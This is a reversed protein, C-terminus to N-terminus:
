CRVWPPPPLPREAVGNHHLAPVTAVPPEGGDAPGFRSGYPVILRETFAGAPGHVRIRGGALVLIGGELTAGAGAQSEEARAAAEAAFARLGSLREATGNGGAVGHRPSSDIDHILDAARLESTDTFVEFGPVLM